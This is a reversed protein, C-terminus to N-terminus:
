LCSEFFSGKSSDQPHIKSNAVVASIPPNEGEQIFYEPKELYGHIEAHKFEGFLKAAKAGDKSLIEFDVDIWRCLAEIQITGLVERSIRLSPMESESEMPREKGDRSIRLRVMEDLSSPLEGTIHKNRSVFSNDERKLCWYSFNAIRRAMIHAESVFPLATVVHCCSDYLELQVKTKEGNYVDKAMRHAIYVIEDRLRESAGGLVLTPPLGGLNETFLPSVLPHTLLHNPAYFQVQFPFTYFFNPDLRDQADRYSMRGNEKGLKRFAPIVSKIKEVQHQMRESIIKCLEEKSLNKMSSTTSAFLTDVNAVPWYRSARHHFGEPPIYDTSYDDVISPLSHTLDVWPSNLVTGAPLPINCDRMLILLSLILSAGSSDGIFIINKPDHKRILYLYSSLIDHLSCPAPFQPALRIEPAFTRVGLASTHKQIHYANTRVTSLYHAGGHVYFIIKEDRSLHQTPQKKKFWWAKLPSNRYLWWHSGGFSKLGEKGLYSRIYSASEDEAQVDIHVPRIKYKLEDAMNSSCLKQVTEVPYNRSDVLFEKIISTSLGLMFTKKQGHRLFRFCYQFAKLVGDNLSELFLQESKFM